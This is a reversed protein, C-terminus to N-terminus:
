VWPSVHHFKILLLVLEIASDVQVCVLHIGTDDILIALFSQMSVKVRSIGVRKQFLDFREIFAEDDAALRSEVPVPQAVQAFSFSNGEDQAVRQVKFRDVAAFDFVIFNIGFFQRVEEATSVESDGVSVRLGPSGGAVQEASSGVEDAPSSFGVGSVVQM